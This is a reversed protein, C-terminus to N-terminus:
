QDEEEEFGHKACTIVAGVIYGATFTISIILFFAFIKLAEWWM